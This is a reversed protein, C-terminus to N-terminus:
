PQHLTINVLEPPNFFRPVEAEGLGRSSVLYTNSKFFLGGDYKPFFDRANGLIGGLIPLRIVGGHTHGSLVVTFGYDKVSDFYNSCHNLMIACTEPPIQPINELKFINQYDLGYLLIRDQKKQIEITENELLIVNYKTYLKRLRNYLAFDDFEHNGSVAYIPCISSIGSLLNEINQFDFRTHDFSDGAILILSPSFDKIKDILDAQKLGFNACHLDSILTIKYNDFSAPIRSDSISYHTITLKNYFGCALFICLFFCLILFSLKKNKM